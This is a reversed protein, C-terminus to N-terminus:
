SSLELEVHYGAHKRINLVGNELILYQGKIGLLRDEMEQQKDLQISKLSPVVEPVPYQITVVQEDPLFYPMYREGLWEQVQERLQYLDVEAWEGKLMKRWNTKDPLYRSLHLELEGAMKRTPLEAVPLARVAGQDVWRKLHNGKRTLGVKVESSVALYVYHPIMCHREGFQSDRCTGLHFHCMAPKVICLDNEALDRFCPFCYGNNYTKNIKRGCAICSKASLFRIRLTQSLHDNLPLDQEGIRVRYQVYDEVQHLLGQIPGTAYM